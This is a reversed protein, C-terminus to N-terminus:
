CFAQKFYPCLQKYFVVNHLNFWSITRMRVPEFTLFRCVPIAVTGGSHRQLGWFVRCSHSWTTSVNKPLMLLLLSHYLRSLQLHNFYIEVVHSNWYKFGGGYVQPNWQVHVSVVLVVAKLCVPSSGLKKPVACSEFHRIGM